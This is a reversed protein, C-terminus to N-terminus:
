STLLEKAKRGCNTESYHTQLIQLCQQAQKKKNEARYLLALDFLCVPLGLLRPQQKLLLSLLKAAKATNKSHLYASAVALLIDPGVKPGPCLKMYEEYYKEIDTRGKVHALHGLLLGATVQFSKARPNCKDINFLHTLATKNVPGFELAQVMKERAEDLKLEAFLHLGEELLAPVLSVHEEEALAAVATNENRALYVGAIIAGSVLGGVHAMYAVNSGKDIYLQLIEKGLWFPFLFWGPVRAYDFYFGFSYFIKIKARGYILGYGGMLGAIAGSAGILPGTTIPYALGFALSACVGTFLYGLLYARRGVGIELLAGVFWLFVMNGLLHMFGGHLFMSTFLGIYNKRAPSYGYRWSFVQQLDAEFVQRLEFWHAFGPDGPALLSQERLAYQFKDDDLMHWFLRATQESDQLDVVPLEEGVSALFEEYLLSEIKFLGSTQAFTFAEIYGDDEDLQFGFFIFCNLLILTLTVVPFKKKLGDSVPIVLM